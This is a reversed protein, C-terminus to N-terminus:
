GHVLHSETYVHLMSLQPQLFQHEPRPLYLGVQEQKAELREPAPPYFNRFPM